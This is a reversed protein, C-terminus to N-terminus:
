ESRLATAPDVRAARWAPGIASALAGAAVVLAVTAFTVPDSPQVGFLMAVMLRSLLGAGILGVVAGGGIVWLANGAVHSMVQRTSAGLARRIGFDRLRQQVSYALLGFLGVMSLVLALTAFAVVLIARFRHRANAEAAVDDLTMIQRVSVLQATDARNIANRVPQALVAAPGSTPAVLLFIDGPTDQAMPVYIQLLDQSETPSGKVQRAVGVIERVTMEAQPAESQWIAVRRGIAGGPLHTRAFAENVICVPTTGAADRDDFARGARVTVGLTEFYGPSVIQMDAAPRQSEVPLPEGEVQFPSAGEYSEGLPLTTAWAVGRVGPLARIESEVSQYFRLEAEDTPYTSSMPDVLMSLVQGDRYGRDVGEVVQLTRLLLGAGVLLVVAVAVQGAVLVDRVRRGRGTISRTGSMAQSAPLSAAQWAPALGFLLGVGVATIACFAAVRLDIALTLVTPLLDAPLVTPALRLIGAGILLGLAGGIASLLLSETLLQRLIRGRDAGLAARVALERQRVTARTMLLTAVNACCMLLVLGVVGIFLVSTQRLESGFIADHLPELLVSRDANTDPYERALGAAVAALDSQAADLSADPRLRGVAVLGHNGRARPPAGIAPVLAWISARGILQAEKPVVGVVTFPDGDLTIERGITDPRANFRERWFAESLVVVSRREVDDAREFTRGAVATIGLATFIESTVWQRAVTDPMGASNGLVMGGVTPAYAGISAFTRSREAWDLMNLVSARGRTTTPTREWVLVVRDPDPVPLPRLLTADVLAFIATNAGIGLALTLIAATAFVPSTRLMRWGYRLDQRVNELRSEARAGLTPAPRHAAQRLPAMRIALSDPELLEEVALARAQGEDLGERRLEEFREDLHQSLEEVIELERSGDLHLRSLQARVDTGWEPM